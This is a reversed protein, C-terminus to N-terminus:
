NIVIEADEVVVNDESDRRGRLRKQFFANILKLQSSSVFKLGVEVSYIGLFSTPVQIKILFSM